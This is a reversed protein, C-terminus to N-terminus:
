TFDQETMYWLQFRKGQGFNNLMIDESPNDADTDVCFLVGNLFRGDPNYQFMDRGPMCKLGTLIPNEDTDYVSIYWSGNTSEEGEMVRKNYFTKIIYRNGDLTFIQRQNNVGDTVTTLSTAM